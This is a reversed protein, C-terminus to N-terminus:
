IRCRRDERDLRDVVSRLWRRVGDPGPVWHASLPTRRPGVQIASGGHDLAAQFADEDTADDGVVVPVRGQFPPEAMLARLAAGKDAGRPRADVVCRGHLIELAEGSCEVARTMAALVDDGREPVRRYHVAITVGKDEVLIGPYEMAVHRAAVRVSDLAAAGTENLRAVGRYEAGHQGIIPLALPAFLRGVCDTTRGSILAVAGRLSRDLRALLPALESPVVVAEPTAAIDLLTGDVDLFLAWRRSPRPMFEGASGVCGHNIERTSVQVM